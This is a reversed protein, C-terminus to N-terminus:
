AEWVTEISSDAFQGDGGMTVLRTAAIDAQRRDNSQAGQRNVM